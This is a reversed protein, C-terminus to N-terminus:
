KAAARMEDIEQRLLYIEHQLGFIANEASISKSLYERYLKEFTEKEEKMKEYGTKIAEDAKSLLLERAKEFYSQGFSIITYWAPDGDNWDVEDKLIAECIGFAVERQFVAHHACLKLVEDSLLSEVPIVINGNADLKVKFDM